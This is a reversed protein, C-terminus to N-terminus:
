AVGVVAWLQKCLWGALSNNTYGGLQLCEKLVLHRKAGVMLVVVM